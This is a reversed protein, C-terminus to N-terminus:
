VSKPKDNKSVLEVVDAIDVKIGVQKMVEPLPKDILQIGVLEDKENFVRVITKMKCRKM